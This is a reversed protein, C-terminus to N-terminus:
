PAWFFRTRQKKVWFRMKLENKGQKLLKENESLQYQLSKNKVRIKQIKQKTTPSVPIRIKKKIDSKRTVIQSLIQHLNVYFKWVSGSVLAFVCNKHRWVFQDKFAQEPKVNKYYILSPGGSYIGYFDIKVLIQEM